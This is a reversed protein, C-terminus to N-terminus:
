EAVLQPKTAARDGPMTEQSVPDECRRSKGEFYAGQEITLTQHLLDGEIHSKSQLTVRIARVSGILRGRIVVDEAIVSGELQANEGLVFSICHIDGRVQGNLHIASKSTVNGTIM